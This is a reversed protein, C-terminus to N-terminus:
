KLARSFQSEVSHLNRSRRKMAASDHTFRFSRRTPLVEKPARCIRLIVFRLSAYTPEHKLSLGRFYLPHGDLVLQARIASFVDPLWALSPGHIVALRIYRSQALNSGHPRGASRQLQM